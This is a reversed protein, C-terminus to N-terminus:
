GPRGPGDLSVELAGDDFRAGAARYGDLAAPLIMTRKHGDVRVV